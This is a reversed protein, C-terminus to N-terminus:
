LKKQFIKIEDVNNNYIKKRENIDRAHFLIIMVIRENKTSSSFCIESKNLTFYIM